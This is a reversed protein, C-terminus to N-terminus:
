AGRKRSLLFYLAAAPLAAVLLPVALEIDLVLMHVSLYAMTAWLLAVNYVTAVLIAKWSFLRPAGIAGALIGGAAAILTAVGRSPPEAEIFGAIVMAPVISTLTVIVILALLYYDGLPHRPGAPKGGAQPAGAPARDM